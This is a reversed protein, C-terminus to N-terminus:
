YGIAVWDFTYIVNGLNRITLQSASIRQIGAASATASNATAGPTAIAKFAANPFAIPYNITLSSNGSIGSTEGWQIILGSPLKQYGNAVLSAGFAGAYGLQASGCVAYWGNTGNSELTLTDGAGLALTTVTSANVTITDTGVRSVTAIGTGINLMEIRKGASVTSAAPLTQTTTGASNIIATGGVVTAPLTSTATFTQVSSAAMGGPLPDLIVFDAGDYELDALQNAVIVAPVKNGAGDYQKISKAGLGSVNLTDSGNGAAHFKVRFRQNAAYATIAPVPTLTFSPATGASTFATVSQSQAGSKPLAADAATSVQKILAAHSRLYEDLNQGIPESGAPSNNAAVPDLDSLSGPVPM